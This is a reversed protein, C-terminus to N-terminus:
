VGMALEGQRRRAMETRSRDQKKRRGSLWALLSRRASLFMAATLSLLDNEM